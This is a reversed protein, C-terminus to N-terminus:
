RPIMTYVDHDPSQHALNVEPHCALDVEQLVEPLVEPLVEQAVEPHALDVDRAAM